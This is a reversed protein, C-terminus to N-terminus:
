GDLADFLSPTRTPPQMKLLSYSKMTACRGRQTRVIFESRLLFPEVEDELTDSSVSM